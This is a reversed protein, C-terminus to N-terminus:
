HRSVYGDPRAAPFNDNTSLKDHQIYQYNFIIRHDRVRDKLPSGLCSIGAIADMVSHCGGISNIPLWVIQDQQVHHNGPHVSKLEHFVDPRRANGHNEYRCLRGNLVTHLAQAKTCVIIDDFGKLHDLEDRANLSDHLAILLARDFQGQAVDRDVRLRVEHCFGTLRDMQFRFFKIEENKEQLVAAQGQETLRNIFANPM